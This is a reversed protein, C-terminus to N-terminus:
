VRLEVRAWLEGDVFLFGCVAFGSGLGWVRFGLGQVRLEGDVFLFGCIAFGSVLGWVRFGLGQVRLEGDVFLFCGIGRALPLKRSPLLRSGAM